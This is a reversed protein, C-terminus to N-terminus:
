NALEIRIIEKIEDEGIACGNLKLAWLISHLLTKDPNKVEPIFKDLLGLEYAAISLEVSRIVKINKIISRLKSLNEKDVEVKTHLKKKLRESIEEPKEILYRTIREDVVLAESELELAAAIAETEGPHVIKIYNGKAKFCSNALELIEKSRQQISDSEIIKITNNKIQENIRLAEFEFKKTSLPKDIIEKKVTPTIIFDGNFQNRLPELLFLLNNIALSIVPGADFIINKKM